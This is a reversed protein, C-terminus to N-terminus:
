AFSEVNKLSNWSPLTSGVSTYNVKMFVEVGKVWSPILLHASSPINNQYKGLLDSGAYRRFTSNEFHYVSISM